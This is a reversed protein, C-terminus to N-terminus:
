FIRGLEDLTGMDISSGNKFTVSQVKHGEDIYKQFIHGPYIEGSYGDNTTYEGNFGKDLLDKVFLRLYETFEPTWLAVSWGYTLKLNKQKIYIHKVRGKRDTETMDWKEPTNVPFLGLVVGAGTEELKDQMQKFCDPPDLQIDPFGLAVIKDKVFPYAQNLTFPVGYPHNMILYGLDIGHNSGDGYYNPIDWKGKRIIFYAKTIGSTKLSDILGESLVRLKKDKKKVYPFVEKSGPIHGLRTAMGSAPILGITEM